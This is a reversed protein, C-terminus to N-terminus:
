GACPLVGAFTALQVTEPAGTKFGLLGSFGHAGELPRLRAVHDMDIDLPLSRRLLLLQCAKLPDGVPDRATLSAM